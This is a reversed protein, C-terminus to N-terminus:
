LKFNNSQHTVTNNYLTGGYGLFPNNFLNFKIVALVSSGIKYVRKAVWFRILLFVYMKCMKSGCM